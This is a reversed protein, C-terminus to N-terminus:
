KTGEKLLFIVIEKLWEQVICKNRNPRCELAVIEVQVICVLVYAILMNVGEYM